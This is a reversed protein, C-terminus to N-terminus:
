LWGEFDAEDGFPTKIISKDLESLEALEALYQSPRLSHTASIHQLESLKGSPCASYFATSCLNLKKLTETLDFGQEIHSLVHRFTTEFAISM